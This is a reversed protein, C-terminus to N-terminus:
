RNYLNLLNAYSVWFHSLLNVNITRHIAESPSQILPSVATPEWWTANHVLIDVQM